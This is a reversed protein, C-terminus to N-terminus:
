KYFDSNKVYVKRSEIILEQLTEGNLNEQFELHFSLESETECVRGCICCILQENEEM